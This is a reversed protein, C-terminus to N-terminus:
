FQARLERREARLEDGIVGVGFHQQVAPALPALLQRLPEVAHPRERDVVPARARRKERAIPEAFLRQVIEGARVHEREGRLQGRQARDYLAFAWMGNLRQPLVKGWHRWGHLLVETDSHDTVFKAGLQELEARLEQFNYIEGNFVISLAGDATTMPQKGGALDLFALRRFGLYAGRDAEILYAEDDPGRHAIRSTMRRLIDADGAGFIGAIGCM